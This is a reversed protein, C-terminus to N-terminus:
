IGVLSGIRRFWAWVVSGDTLRDLREKAQLDGGEVAKTYWEIAQQKSQPVGTGSEYAYGLNYQAHSENRDAANRLLFLGRTYDVPVGNGQFYIVGLNM